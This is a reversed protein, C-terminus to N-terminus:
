RLRLAFGSRIRRVQIANLSANGSYNLSFTYTPGGATFFGTLSGGYTWGSGGLRVSESPRGSPCVTGSSWKSHLILQVLYENGAELNKLKFVYDGGQKLWWGRSLLAAYGPDSTDLGETGLGDINMYM